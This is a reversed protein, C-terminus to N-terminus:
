GTDVGMYHGIIYTTRERLHIEIKHFYKERQRTKEKQEMQREKSWNKERKCKNVIAISVVM